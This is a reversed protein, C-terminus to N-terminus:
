PGRSGAAPAPASGGLSDLYSFAQASTAAAALLLATCKMNPNSRQEKPILFSIFTQLAQLAGNAATPTLAVTKKLKIKENENRIRRRKHEEEDSTNGQMGTVIQGRKKDQGRHAWERM